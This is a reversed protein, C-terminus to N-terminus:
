LDFNVDGDWVFQARCVATGDNRRLEFRDINGIHEAAIDVEEGYRTEHIFNIDFRSLKKNTLTEFPLTDIMWEVYKMSNAHCNFDIDSYKVKHREVVSGKVAPVKAPKAIPCPEPNAANAYDINTRLDLPLRTTFDIMAWYTSACGIVLGESDRIIFNRTTMLRGVDEIWTEISYKEYQVPFRAVEIAIRSLVWTMNSQQLKEVGFGNHDADEGATHLIYDGLTMITARKSSDVERPLVTYSYRRKEIM